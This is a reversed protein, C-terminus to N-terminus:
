HDDKFATGQPFRICLYPSNLNGGFLKAVKKLFVELKFSTSMEPPLYAAGRSLFYTFKKKRWEAQV